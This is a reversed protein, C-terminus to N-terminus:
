FKEMHQLDKSVAWQGLENEPVGLEEAINNITKTLEEEALKKHRAAIVYQNLSLKFLERQSQFVKKKEM